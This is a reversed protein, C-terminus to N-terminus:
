RAQGVLEQIRLALDEVSIVGSSILAFGKTKKDMLFLTPVYNIGAGSSLLQSIGNDKQADPFGPIPGGDLSVTYVRIGTKQRLMSLMAAQDKCFNCDSRAFFLIGYAERASEFVSQAHNSTFPTERNPLSAADVRHIIALGLFVACLFFMKLSLWYM